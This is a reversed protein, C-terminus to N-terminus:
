KWMIISSDTYITYSSWFVSSSFFTWLWTCTEPIYEESAINQIYWISGLHDLIDSLSMPIWNPVVYRTLVNLFCLVLLQDPVNKQLEWSSRKSIWSWSTTCFDGRLILFQHLYRRKFIIIWDLLYMTYYSKKEFLFQCLTM